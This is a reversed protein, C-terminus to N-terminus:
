FTAILVFCKSNSCYLYYKDNQEDLRLLYAEVLKVGNVSILFLGTSGVRYVFNRFSM